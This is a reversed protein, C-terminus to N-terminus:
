RSLVKKNANNSISIIIGIFMLAAWVIILNEWGIQTVANAFLLNALAAAGYSIFDLYGTATSVFGTDKLSPCYVSWLMSSAGQASIVAVLLFLINLIPFTIMRMMMFSITSLLFMLLLMRNINRKLLKEYIIVINIYPTASQVFTMLTFLTTATAVSFGLYQSLYTPIWFVVSTRVIGTLISIFTFKIIGHQILTKAASKTKEEKSKCTYKIINKKEFITFFVFSLTGVIILTIGSVAFAINWEFFLSVVGAIPVGFIAAFELGLCCRYAHTPHTNEAIVKTMPAYLMSLFFGIMSYAILVLTEINSISIVINCIGTMFLGCSIMYKATIKDGIIGNVLQGIAYFLMNATSLKGIYEVSYVGQDIMSPSVVSLINKAFYCVLYALSCLIGLRLANKTNENRLFM